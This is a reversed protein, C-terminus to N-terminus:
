QMAMLETVIERLTEKIELYNIRPIDAVCLLQYAGQIVVFAILGIGVMPILTTLKPIKPKRTYSYLLMLPAIFMLSISKGFGIAVAIPYYEDATELLKEVAEVSGAQRIMMYIMITADAIGAIVLMVTLFISFHLSNRNTRLFAQYDEHTNGHRCYRLERSKLFLAMLVFVFFTMPPKVTLLPFSWVPLKVRGDACAAKILISGVEYGVPLIAFLRFLIIWNGRFVKRPRYNLFFMFLTCLFLDIFINFCLFGYHTFMAVLDMVMPMVQNPETTIKTLAGVIYHYFFANFGVFIGATALGNRMIQAKYGEENNLLRSFNAILMFPVSLAPLYGLIEGTKQLGSMKQPNVKVGLKMMIIVVSMVICLWGLAMFGQYSIPGRYWIDDYLGREHLQKFRRRSRKSHKKSM